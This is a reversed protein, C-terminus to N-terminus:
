DFNVLYRNLGVCTGSGGLWAPMYSTKVLITYAWISIPLYYFLSFGWKAFTYCRKKRKELDPYKAENIFHELFWGDFYHCAHDLITFIIM